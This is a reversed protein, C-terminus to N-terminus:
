WSMKAMMQRDNATGFECPELGLNKRTQFDCNDYALFESNNYNYMMTVNDYTGEMTAIYETANGSAQSIGAGAIMVGYGIYTMFTTLIALLTGKPIATAPDKLDGSLNAGAVIGTVAPFFVGFLTFFDLKEDPDANNHYDSKVSAKFTETTYGTFGFKKEDDDPGIITGIMFDFQSVILLILLILQVRTVWDMGVIAILLVIILTISGILRM